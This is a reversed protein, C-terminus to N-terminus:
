YIWAQLKFVFSAQWLTKKFEETSIPIRSKHYTLDKFSLNQPHDGNATGAISQEFQKEDYPM